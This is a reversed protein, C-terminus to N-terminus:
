GKKVEGREQGGFGAKQRLRIRPSTADCRLHSAPSPSEGRTWNEGGGRLIGRMGVKEGCAPLLLLPLTTTDGCIATHTLAHRMRKGANDVLELALGRAGARDNDGDKTIRDHGAA